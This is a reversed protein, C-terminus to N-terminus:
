LDDDAEISKIVDILSKLAREIEARIEWTLPFVRPNKETPACKAMQDNFKALVGSLFEISKEKRGNADMESNGVKTSDVAPAGSSLQGKEVWNRLDSSESDGLELLRHYPLLPELSNETYCNVLAIQLSHMIVGPLDDTSKVSVAHLPFPFSVSGDATGAWISVSRGMEKASAGEEQTVQNLLRGVYWGRLMKQWVEPHAPITESLTRGRRWKMFSERNDKLSQSAVWEKAIPEVVSSMVIPQYPESTSTFIDIVSAKAGKGQGVFWKDTLGDEWYGVANLAAKCAEFLPGSPEIPIDSCIIMKAVSSRKHVASLLAPNIEVLPDASSVFKSFADRFKEVRDSFTEQDIKPNLFEVIKQDLYGRFARGPIGIWLRAYEIFDMHNDSVDFRAEQGASGSGTQFAANIPMWKQSISLASWRESPDLKSVLESGNQGQILERIVERRADVDKDMITQEILNFFIKPYSKVDILLAENPAPSFKSDVADTSFSPWRSYPNDRLDPLKPERTSKGLSSAAASLSRELKKVFNNAFDTTLDSADKKLDAEARWGLAFGASEYASLVAPNNRPIVNMTAVSGLSESLLLTINSVDSLHRAREEMLEVSASILQQSLRRLLEITVPLGLESVTKLTLTIIQDPKTSVWDRILKRRAQTAQGLSSQLNTEFANALKTVWDNFSQGAAGAGSEAFMQLNNKFDATISTLESSPRLVDIVQNNMETTENLGSDTVFRGENLDAFYSVWQEATKEKCLPDQELHRELMTGLAQKALREASYESFREMGLSLRSFGLASFPTADKTYRMLRTGDPVSTARADFNGKFYSRFSDQIKGNTLWATVSTGVAKYVATQTGFDINSSNKRGVLYLYKPGVRYQEDGGVIVGQSRYMAATAASPNSTWYGSMTEAMAGLANPAMNKMNGIQHFVDPAYLIATTHNAYPAGGTASKVAETVDMFMGAGSGGAVSSIIVIEIEEIEEKNGALRAIQELESKAQPSGMQTLASKAAAHIQNMAASAITRGIARYAGAGLSVPVMVEEPAPLPRELDLKFEAPMKGILTNYIGSYPVGNPVLSVYDTTPLFDAPFDSGDQTSVSDIHLFKWASPIGKTWGIQRLYAKLEQQVARLTKGGSGGVGVLLFPQM